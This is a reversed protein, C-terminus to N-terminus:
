VSLIFKMLQPLSQSRMEDYFSFARCSICVYWQERCSVVRFYQKWRWNGCRDGFRNYIYLFTFSRSSSLSFRSFCWQHVRVVTGGLIDHPTRRALRLRCKDPSSDTEYENLKTDIWQSRPPLRWEDQTSVKYVGNDSGMHWGSLWAFGLWRVNLEVRNTTPNRRHVVFKKVFNDPFDKVASEEIRRQDTETGLTVKSSTNSVLSTQQSSRVNKHHHSSRKCVITPSTAQGSSDSWTPSDEEHTGQTWTGSGSDPGPRRRTNTRSRSKTQYKSTSTQTTIASGTSMAGTSVWPYEIPVRRRDDTRNWCVVQTNVGMCTVYKLEFKSM